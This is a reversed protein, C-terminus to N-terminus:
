LINICWVNHSVKIGDNVCCKIAIPGIFCTICKGADVASNGGHAPPAPSWM